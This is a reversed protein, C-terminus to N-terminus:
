AVSSANVWAIFYKELRLSPDGSKFVATVTEVAETLFLFVPHELSGDLSRNRRALIAAHAYLIDVLASVPQGNAVVLTRAKEATSEIEPVDVEAEQFPMLLDIFLDVPVSVLDNLKHVWLESSTPCARTARDVLVDRQDRDLSGSETQQTLVRCSRSPSVMWDVYRSWVLAEATKYAAATEVLQTEVASDKGFSADEATFAANGYVVVTREFVAATLTVDM